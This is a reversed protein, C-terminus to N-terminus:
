RERSALRSSRGTPCFRRPQPLFNLRPYRDPVITSGPVGAASFMCSCLAPGASEDTHLVVFRGDPLAAIRLSALMERRRCTSQRKRRSPRAPPISCRCMSPGIPSAHRVAGHGLRGCLRGDSCHRSRQPFVHARHASDLTGVLNHKADFTFFRIISATPRNWLLGGSRRSGGGSLVTKTSPPPSFTLQGHLLLLRGDGCAPRRGPSGVSVVPAHATAAVDITLAGTGVLTDSSDLVTYQVSDTGSFGAASADEEAHAEFTIKGGAATRILDADEAVSLPGNPASDNALVGDAADVQLTTDEVADIQDNVIAM